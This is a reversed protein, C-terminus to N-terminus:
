MQASLIARRRFFFMPNTNYLPQTDNKYCVMFEAKRSHWVLDGLDWQVWSFLFFYWVAIVM